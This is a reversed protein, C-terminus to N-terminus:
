SVTITGLMEDPHFTCYYPYTGVTPFAQVYSQGPQIPTSSAFSDGDSTVTHRNDGDNKWTVSEGAVVTISGPLYDFDVVEIEAGTNVIEPLTTTSSDGAATTTTSEETSTTDDSASDDSSCSASGLGAVLVLAVATRRVVIRRGMNTM